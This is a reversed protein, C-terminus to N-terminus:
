PRRNLLHCMSHIFSCSSAPAVSVLPLMLELPFKTLFFPRQAGAALWVQPVSSAPTLAARTRNVLLSANSGAVSRVVTVFTPTSASGTPNGQVATTPALSVAGSALGFPLLAGTSPFLPSPSSFVSAPLGVVFMDFSGAGFSASTGLIDVDGSPAVVVARASDVGNGGWTRAWVLSGTGFDLRLIFADSNGVGIGIQGAVVVDGNAALAVAAAYDDGSGGWTRAWVVSGNGGALRLVLADESSGFSGAVGAVVVDGNTAVAVAHAGDVGVGGWTRTWEVSGTTGDLRVVIVDNNGAGFSNTRGVVVVDDFVMDVAVVLDIGSGGWTSAWVVVGSNGDLRLVIADSSAGVSGTHGVVVVDGGPATVVAYADDDSSGGWTRAWMEIGSSGDLRLVFMDDGGAGVSATLGAVVVDGNAAMVVAFAQDVGGGGWTRAWVVTGSGGLLRMVLVDKGGAGLSETVGVVVVDGNAALTVAQASDSGVGGYASLPLLGAPWIGSRDAATLPVLTTADVGVLSSPVTASVVTSVSGAPTGLVASAPSLTVAGLPVGFPFSSGALTCSSAPSSFVAAPLEFVFADLGSVGLQFSQSSGALVVNGNPAIALSSASDTGNGGWTRAWVVSGSSGDLRLVLVDLNGTGFSATGGAVIVDGNLTLVADVAYDSSSGGWTRAWVVSGSGGELRLAFVDDGVAGFSSTYGVVVVDNTAMVVSWGYDTSSGGWMREWVVSGNGGHLRRVAVDLGGAGFSATAGAVVVDGNAAM